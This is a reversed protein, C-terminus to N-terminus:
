YFSIRAQSMKWDFSLISTSIYTWQYKTKQNDVYEEYPNLEANMFM